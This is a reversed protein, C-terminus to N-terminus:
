VLNVKRDAATVGVRMMVPMVHMAPKQPKSTTYNGYDGDHEQSHHRQQQIYDHKFSLQDIVLSTQAAPSTLIKPSVQPLLIIM